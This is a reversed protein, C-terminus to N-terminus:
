GQASLHYRIANASSLGLRHQVEQRPLGSNLLHQTLSHRLTYPSVDPPLNCAKAWRKVVLWLGQRTLGTGRQNLFLTSEGRNRLLQPRGEVVYRQVPQRATGLPLPDTEAQRRDLVGRELDLDDVKVQVADAARLGTAYLFALIASDRIDRASTSAAPASLLQRIQPPSLAQPKHRQDKPLELKRLHGDLDLGEQDHLYSVFSRLAAMKRAITAPKYEQDKLWVLYPNLHSAQLAQSRLEESFNRKLVQKFQLLDTRYAIITNKAGGQDYKLHTLYRAIAQDIV